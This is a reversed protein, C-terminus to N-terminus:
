SANCNGSFLRNWRFFEDFISVPKHKQIIMKSKLFYKLLNNIKSQLYFLRKLHLLHVMSTAVPHSLVVMDSQYQFANLINPCIPDILHSHDYNVSDFHLRLRNGLFNSRRYTETSDNSPFFDVPVWQQPKKIFYINWHCRLILESPHLRTFQMHGHAFTRWRNWQISPLNLKKHIEFEFSDSAIHKSVITTTIRRCLFWLSAFWSSTSTIDVSLELVLELSECYFRMNIKIELWVCIDCLVYVYM